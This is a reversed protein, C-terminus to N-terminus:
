RPRLSVQFGASRFNTPSLSALRMRERASRSGQRTQAFPSVIHLTGFLREVLAARHLAAAV